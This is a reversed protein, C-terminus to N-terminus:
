RHDSFEELQKIVTSQMRQKKKLKRNLLNGIFGLGIKRKIAPRKKIVPRHQMRHRRESPTRILHTQAAKIKLQKAVLEKERVSAREKQQRKWGAGSFTVHPSIYIIIM